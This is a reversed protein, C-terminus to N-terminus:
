KYIFLGIFNWDAYKCSYFYMNSQPSTLSKRKKHLQMSDIGKKTEHVDDVKSLVIKFRFSFKNSTICWVDFVIPFKKGGSRFFFDRSM